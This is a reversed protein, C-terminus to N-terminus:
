KRFMNKSAKNSFEKWTTAKFALDKLISYSAPPALVSSFRGVCLLGGVALVHSAVGSFTSHGPDMAKVRNDHYKEYGLDWMMWAGRWILVVSMSICYLSGFRAIRSNFCKMNKIPNKGDSAEASACKSILGQTVALGATGLGLSSTASYLPNDPFLNDDLVYWAGRWFSAVGIGIGVQAALSPFGVSPILPPRTRQITNTMIQRTKRDLSSSPKM